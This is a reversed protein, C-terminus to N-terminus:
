DFLVVVARWIPKGAYDIFVLAAIGVLIGLLWGNAVRVVTLPLLTHFHCFSNVASAFAMSAGLRFVERYNELLGRRRIVYYIILCPYGVIFEKTRPRVWLLRELMDRFQVEWGPVFSANDSRVTLVVAAIFVFGILMLEGWISPRQVINLLSEPHIRNKLDSALILVPPLLLTMKVGSFPTIRLMSNTTGYFAAICLGGSIVILLGALLGYFPRDYRDLAWITAETALFACAFGGLLKSVLSIKWAGLGILVSCLVIAALELSKIEAGPILYRRSYSWFCLLLVMAVGIASAPTAHFMPITEPWGTSYSRSALANRIIGIDEIFPELREVSYLEYPRLLLIRISREHVARVMREIIQPRSYRRSLAEERVLSHLPLLSPNMAANFEAIGVQRVFEAQGASIDLEKLTRVIPSLDPFGVVTQGAPLMCNISPYKEKLWKLSEAARESNVGPSAVPRFLSAAGMREAFELAAFDPLVGADALEDTAQPFVALTGEGTALTVIGDNRIRLYDLIPQLLPESNEILIAARDLPLTLSMQLIPRFTALSGYYVPLFGAAIDKGMLDSVTVGEAGLARMRNFIAEPSEGSQRSLLVLDRYEVAIGVTRHKWEVSLRRYLDYGSLLVALILLGWFIKDTGWTPKKYRVEESEHSHLGEARRARTVPPRIDEATHESKEIIEKSKKKERPM